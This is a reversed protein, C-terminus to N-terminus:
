YGAASDDGRIDAVGERRGDPRILIAEVRGISSRTKITHGMAKLQATKEESFTGEEVTIQDPLWQSHFRGNHVADRLPLDFEAVNLFTQFVSTIITSGGPSGVVMFLENNKEIITPTMSSLMRKEPQIANAEAGVLGYLNPTGPKASFDDMENNLFFGAGEVVVKSGYGSNLTTTVAVANGEADVISYHTTEESEKRKRKKFKGAVVDDSSTARKPDFSKMRDVAYTKQLLFMTPVDYFDSDGLHTARDAYARRQAETMLHISELSQFGMRSLHYPEIMNLMQALVIGGSSPPPMSIIRYDKYQSQIPQRWKAEYKELDKHTIIGNGKKMEAVIKDATVGKYFGDFGKDRILKLTEALEKQILPENAKWEATKVFATSHPNHKQFTPKLRNLNNAEKETIFFGNEALQIAPAVLDAFPLKGFREHATVMGAVTGPVGTSLHGSRSLDTPEGNEDLYMDRSASLPAKERYDLAVNYGDNQRVMMFGGGGINGAAPYVVALAFEVAIAADVASGGQQLIKTGAESALPHASVVMAKDSLLHKRIKYGPEREKPAEITPPSVQVNKTVTCTFLFPLVLLLAFKKM